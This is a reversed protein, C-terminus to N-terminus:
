ICQGTADDKQSASQNKIKKGPSNEQNKQPSGNGATMPLLATCPWLGCRGATAGLTAEETPPSIARCAKAVKNWGPCPRM